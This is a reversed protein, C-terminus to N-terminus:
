HKSISVKDGIETKSKKITGTHTEIIYPYQLNYFFLRNPKITSAKKIIYENDMVLIDISNKLFFTHMGFRTKFLLSPPNSKKLLGAIKDPLSTAIKLDTALITGKTINKLIM